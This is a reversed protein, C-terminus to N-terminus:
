LIKKDIVKFHYGLFTIGEKSSKICTKDENLELKYEINLKYKIIKLVESLYEKNHHILIYDDM